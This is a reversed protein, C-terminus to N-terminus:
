SLLFAVCPWIYYQLVQRGVQRVYSHLKVLTIAMAEESTPKSLTSFVSASKHFPEKDTINSLNGRRLSQSSIPQHVSFASLDYVCIKLFMQTSDAM